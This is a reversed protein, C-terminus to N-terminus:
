EVQAQNIVMQHRESAGVLIDVIMSEESETKIMRYLEMRSKPFSLPDTSEFYGFTSLIQQTRPLDKKAILFDIDKTFRPQDHFALALGGIVCYSIKNKEFEGVIRFFEDYLHM